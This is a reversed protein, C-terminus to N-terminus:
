SSNRQKAALSILIIPLGISCQRGHKIAWSVPLKSPEKERNKLAYKIRSVVVSKEDIMKMESYVAMMSIVEATAKVGTIL